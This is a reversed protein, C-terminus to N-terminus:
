RIVEVGAVPVQLLEGDRGPADEALVDGDGPASVKADERVGDGPGAEATDIPEALWRHKIEMRPLDVRVVWPNRQRPADRRRVIEIEFRRFPPQDAQQAIEAECGHLLNEM